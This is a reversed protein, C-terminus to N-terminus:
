SIYISVLIIEKSEKYRYKLEGAVEVGTVGAGAIVITKARAVQTQLNHLAAKTTETSGLGKFPTPEETRTGTAIILIDYALTAHVTVGSIEVTKAEVDLSKAYAIIHEFQSSPYRAFGTAIPQFLQEDAFEDPVIGRASAMNVFHHTNPSVLTVKFPGIQTTQKLIKHASTIGAYSGGLILINKMTQPTLSPAATQRIHLGLLFQAVLAVSEAFFSAVKRLIYLMNFQVSPFYFDM